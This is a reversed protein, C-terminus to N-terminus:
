HKMRLNLASRRQGTGAIESETDSRDNIYWDEIDWHLFDNLETAHLVNMLVDSECLFVREIIMFTKVESHMVIYEGSTGRSSMLM